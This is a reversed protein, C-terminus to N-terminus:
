YSITDLDSSSNKGIIQVVVKNPLCVLLQGQKHIIGQKICLKNICSSDIMRVNYGEIEIINKGHESEITVVEKLDKDLSYKKYLNGDVYIEAYTTDYNSTAKGIIIISVISIILVLIILFKDYKTM